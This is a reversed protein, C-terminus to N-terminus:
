KMPAEADPKSVDVKMKGDDLEGAWAKLQSVLPVQEDPSDKYLVIEIRRLPPEQRRRKNVAEKVETFTWYHPGDGVDLRYCRLGKVDAKKLPEQGLVEIRLTQDSPSKAEGNTKKGEGEKKATTTTKEGEGRGTGSGSFWGGMGGIGPGGGGFLWIYVLWGCIVGGLVRVIVTPWPPLKKTTLAKALLQALLSLGFGGLVGGGVVALIKVLGDTTM